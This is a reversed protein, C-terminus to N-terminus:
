NIWRSLKFSGSNRWNCVTRQHAANCRPLSRESGIPQGDVYFQLRNDSTISVGIQTWQNMTFPVPQFEAYVGFGSFLIGSPQGSLAPTVELSWGSQQSNDLGGIIGGRMTLTSPNVRASVSFNQTLEGLVIDEDLQVLDDIGDFTLAVNNLETTRGEPNTISILTHLVDSAGADAFTFGTQQILEAATISQGEVALNPSGLTLVVPSQNAVLVPLAAQGDVFVTFQGNDSPVFSVLTSTGAAVQNGTSDEIHWSTGSQLQLEIPQGEFGALNHGPKLESTPLSLFSLRNLKSLPDILNPHDLPNVGTGDLSIAELTRNSSLAAISTVQTNQDLVIRRLRPLGLVEGTFLGSTARVPTLRNVEADTLHNNTLVLSRLNVLHEIGSLSVIGLGTLDLEVLSSLESARFELSDLDAPRGLAEAIARHLAEDPIDVIPDTPSYTTQATNEENPPPLTVLDGVQFDHIEIDEGVFADAGSEGFLHDFDHNGVLLDDGDGGRLTDRDSSTSSQGANPPAFEIRFMRDADVPVGDETRFAFSTNELLSAM